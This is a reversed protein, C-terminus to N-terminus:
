CLWVIKRKFDIPTAAEACGSIETANRDKKSQGIIWQGSKHKLIIGQHLVDGKKGTLNPKGNHIVKISDNYVVVTCTNGLDKGGWEDWMIKYTYTGNKPKQADLHNTFYILCALLVLFKM